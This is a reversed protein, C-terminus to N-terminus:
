RMVTRTIRNRWAKGSAVNSRMATYPDAAIPARASVNLVVKQNLAVSVSVRFVLRRKVARM